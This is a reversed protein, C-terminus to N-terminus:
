LHMMTDWVCLANSLLVWEGNACRVGADEYHSCDHLGWGSFDCDGIHSETGNCQVEDMWINGRGRGFRGNTVAELAMPYGLQRCVVQADNDNWGDDCVNGWSGSHYVEVRGESLM